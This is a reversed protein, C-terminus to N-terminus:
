VIAVEAIKNADVGGSGWVAGSIKVTSGGVEEAVFDGIEYGSGAATYMYVPNGQKPTGTACKVLVWGRRLVGVTRGAPINTSEPYGSGAPYTRVIVGIVKQDGAGTFYDVKGDSTYYAARGVKVDENKAFIAPEVICYSARSIDGACGNPVDSLSNVAFM